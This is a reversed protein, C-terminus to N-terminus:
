VRRDPVTSDIFHVLGAQRRKNDRVEIHQLEPREDNRAM